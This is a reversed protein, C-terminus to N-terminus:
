SRLAEKIYEGIALRFANAARCSAFVIRVEFDAYLESSRINRTEELVAKLRKIEAKACEPCEHRFSITKGHACEYVYFIPM